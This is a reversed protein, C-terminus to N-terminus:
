VRALLRRARDLDHLAKETTPAVATLHGMKRGPRAALKGYLHLKVNPISTAAAWDPEADDWLDGLLNGMAAPSLQQVSGLPLGCVARLQQEFQSAINADVTFHGSNHPRPALENILLSGDQKLFFEVCLVGIVDLKELVTRAIEIAEREIRADVQAPAITLDLIHNTHRNEVLGYHVFNGDESRAAVLSVERDFPIFAELVAEQEGISRWADAIQEATRITFQGKGDYGFGATKLVAPLGLESSAQTLETLSRIRRFPTVPLGSDFLFTKERLRHQTIHLVEGGPRVPAFEAAAAATAAPVNEFEFTVASVNKAFDRVADLDDYSAMIEVDAVQGTPTDEDPSFTHVRYGM